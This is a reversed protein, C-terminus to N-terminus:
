LFSSPPPLDPFPSSFLLWSCLEKLSLTPDSIPLFFPSPVPFNPAPSPISSFCMQYHCELSFRSLSLLNFSSHLPFPFFLTSQPLYALLPTESRLGDCPSRTLFSVTPSPFRLFFFFLCASLFRFFFFWRAM